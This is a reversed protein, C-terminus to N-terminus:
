YINDNIASQLVVDRHFNIINIRIPMHLDLINMRVTIYYEVTM